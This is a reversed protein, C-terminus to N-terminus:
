IEKIAASVPRSGVPIMTFLAASKYRNARISPIRIVAMDGSARNLVLAYQHDPTITIHGPDRGVPVVAIVRRSQVDIISVDGSQENAVFLYDHEETSSTAMFGPTRGALATEGVETRYPYVIVVADMGDGTIFLQGGDFNFCLYRPRVALPLRTIMGGSPVAFISLLPEDRSAIMLQRGDSQFRAAAVSHRTEVLRDTKRNLLDVLQVDSRGTFTVVARLGERDTDFGAPEGALSIRWDVTFSDLGVQILQNPHRSLVWAAGGPAQRMMVASSSVALKRRYQLSDAQIEHLTGTPPTLVFISPRSPHTMVASPRGDVRIHRVVTFSTLDVVAIAQGEDNAVFAFGPYGSGRRPGCGALAFGGTLM